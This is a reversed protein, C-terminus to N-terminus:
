SRGSRVLRVILIPTGIIAVIVLGLAVLGVVIEADTTYGGTGTADAVLGRETLTNVLVGGMVIGVAGILAALVLGIISATQGVRNSIHQRDGM